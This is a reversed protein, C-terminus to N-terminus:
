FRRITTHDINGFDFFQCIIVLGSAYIYNVSQMNQQSVSKPFEYARALVGMGDGADNKHLEVCM